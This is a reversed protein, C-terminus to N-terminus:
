EDAAFSWLGLRSTDGGAAEITALVPAAPSFAVTAGREWVKLAKGTKTDWVGVFRGARTVSTQQPDNFRAREKKITFRSGTLALLKGDASFAHPSVQVESQSLGELPPLLDLNDANLVHTWNMGSAVVVRKGDPSFQIHVYTTPPTFQPDPAPVVHKIRADNKFVESVLVSYDTMVFALRKGDPSMACAKAVRSEVTKLVEGTDANVEHLGFRSEDGAANTEVVVTRFTKGDASYAYGATRDPSLTLNREVQFSPGAVGGPGSLVTGPPTAGLGPIPAPPNMLKWTSLRHHGSLLEYERLETLVREGDPAFGVLQQKEFNRIAQVGWPDLTLVHIAPSNQLGSGTLTRETGGVVIRTGARNWHMSLVNTLRVDHRRVIQPASTFKETAEAKGPEVKAAPPDAKTPPTKKKQPDADPRAAFVVGAATLAAGMVGIAFMRRVDIGGKALRAVDVVIPVGAAADAVQGCTKAVLSEPVPAARGEGVAAPIAAASLVVGRRALRDALKKRGNALRSSLTGEPVGLLVAAEARPVGRLDCLVIADRFVTPLKALEAHLIPGTDDPSDSAAAVPDPMATVQVERARRRAAARRAKQGVRVAVGYLWNGLLDPEAVSAGRRALVLFVAQFADEADQPHGSVRRCVALMMPVHRRVLREFAAHDRHRVFRALLDRDADASEDLHRLIEATRVDSM